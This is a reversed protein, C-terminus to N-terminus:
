IGHIGGGLNYINLELRKNKEIKEAIEGIIKNKIKLYTERGLEVNMIAYRLSKANFCFMCNNLNECNHCFYCDTCNSCDSLEFCRALKVSNYCKMSFNSAFLFHGGFCYESERPWFCYADCKSYIYWVGDLCHQAHMFTSTKRLDQNNGLMVDSTVYKIGNLKESANALTIMKADNESLQKKGLELSEELTVMNKKISNFFLIDPVYVINDSAQSKIHLAKSVNELLWERYSEVGALKKGLLIFSTEQFAREIEDM